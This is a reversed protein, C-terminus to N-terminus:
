IKKELKIANQLHLMSFFDPFLSAPSNIFRLKLSKNCKLFFNRGIKVESVKFHMKSINRYM